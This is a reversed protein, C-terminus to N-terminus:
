KVVDGSFVPDAYTDPNAPDFLRHSWFFTTVDAQSTNEIHHTHLPPMDIAVPRDGSVEFSFVEESLVKRVRVTAQGSVVLFREVLDIHFHDGRIKGPVTSSIFTQSSAAARASEFLAGRSDQNVKLALPYHNPFGGTRYANFLALDFPDTLDPFLNATYSQHFDRLKDFLASIAMDRGPPAIRSGENSLGAAVAMNAVAGAHVLSVTGATNITPEEGQWLQDILTATVNNYHPRAGEGFIHPLIMDTYRNTAARLIEGARRKSVGYPTDRDAHISNAYVISAQSGTRAMSEALQAAIAPNAAEVVADDGRNVGAFHLVTEADAIAADRIASDGFKSRSLCRLEYPEAEGRYRAACNAAHVRAAVHWGLLGDAGTVVVAKPKM